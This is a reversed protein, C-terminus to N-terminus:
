KVKASYLPRKVLKALKRKGRIDVEILDDMAASEGDLLMMGGAKELSPLFSASTVVGIKAGDKYVDMGHRAIGEEQMLFAMMRRAPVRGEKQDLMLQRGLFEGKEFRIAWGIGAEVPSVTDDMDNGYLLYCSELRLTDRAGLGIPKVFDISVLKLFTKEAIENPLYIEYGWEGTYGTRAIYASEGFLQVQTIETYALNNVKGFDVPDLLSQLAEPSKPGQVALQSWLHSQNEISVDHYGKRSLLWEYDKEVNSANVCLLFLDSAMRYIILDDIFGAQENPLASYQGGGIKLRNIDNITNTQLFKVADVGGVWIEGMHSVDFVGCAERVHKHEAIVGEYQVPMDWGGFPVMRGKLSKHTAHLPTKKLTDNMEAGKDM